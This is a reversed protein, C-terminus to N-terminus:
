VDKQFQRRARDRGTRGASFHLGGAKAATCKQPNDSNSGARNNLYALVSNTKFVEGAVVKPIMSVNFYHSDVGVFKLERNREDEEYPSCIYSYTPISKQTAKVIEPCGYFVYSNDGTSGVIDRHRRHLRDRNASRSDQERVM